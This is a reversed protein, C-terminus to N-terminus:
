RVAVKGTQKARSYGGSYAFPYIVIAALIGGAVDIVSHQKLSVTAMCIAVMLVASGIRVLRRDQLARSKTLAVHVCISNYVHISPFVNTCTDARYILSVLYSCLNKDPDIVPRLDTGNPFITCILLSITMGAFLYTCLHYYNEKSTFFFYALAGAVYISWLLYPIIFYENFPILDDLQSHMVHYRRTVTRELYAFWPLYLFAYSLTWIHGYKKFFNVIRTKNM